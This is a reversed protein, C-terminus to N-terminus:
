GGVNNSKEYAAIERQVKGLSLGTEDAIRRYSRGCAKLRALLERNVVVRKRGLERGEAKARALGAMVRDKILEREFEAFAMLIHQQLRGAPTTTDTDLGQSPIILRTKHKTLEQYFEVFQSLSRAIRDLKWALIVDVKGARVKQLLSEFVPRTKTASVKEELITPTPWEMRTAYALLEPIQNATTQQKDGTSVRTYLYVNM